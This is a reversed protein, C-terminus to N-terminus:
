FAFIDVTRDSSDSWVWLSDIRTPISWSQLHGLLMDHTGAPVLAGVQEDALNQKFAPGFPRIEVDGGASTVDVKVYVARYAAITTDSLAVWPKWRLVDETSSLVPDATVVPVAIGTEQTYQQLDYLPSAPSRAHIRNPNDVVKQYTVTIAAALAVSCFVGILPAIWIRLSRDM